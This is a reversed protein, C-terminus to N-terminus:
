FPLKPLKFGGPAAKTGAENLLGTMRDTLVKLQGDMAELGTLSKELEKMPGEVEKMVEAKLKKELEAAQENVVKGVSDKLVRDLDSSLKLDYNDLTGTIDAEINFSRVGSLASAIGKRLANRDGAEGAAIEVANLSANLRADIKDGVAGARLNFDTLADKLVVPLGKSGSLEMDKIKLGAADVTLTDKPKAPDIRDLVGNIRVSRLGKLRDGSFDFKLPSGLIHQDPTIGTIVGKIDGAPISVSVLAKKVLFDPLPRHEQFRVYQGKGRPRTVVEVGKEEQGRKLVPEVRRYWGLFKGSWETLAGGIFVRSLNTLGGTTLAYRNKIREVDGGPAKAADDALKRYNKLKGNVDDKLTNVRKLDKRIDDQLSLMEAAGGIMGGFDKGSAKLRDIRQRYDDIKKKDPLGKLEEQWKEKSRDAEGKLGTIIRVSELNEKALIDRVSPVEFPILRAGPPAGKEAKPARTVAGSTKRPTNLRVGDITMEDIIVKRRLLNLGDMTFVIKGAEFANTMPSDPNTVRLGTLTLGAPFLSLDAKALEVKAGVIATGTKEIGKRILFDVALFWLVAMVAAAAAFAMLGKWRIWRM